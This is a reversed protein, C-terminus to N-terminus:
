KRKMKLVLVVLITVTVVGLVILPLWQVFSRERKTAHLRCNVARVTAPTTDNCLVPQNLRHMGDEDERVEVASALQVEGSTEM